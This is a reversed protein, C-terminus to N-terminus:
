RKSPITQVLTEEDTGNTCNNDRGDAIEQAGPYITSDRDDCDIDVGAYGDGDADHDCLDGIGDSDLDDQSSESTNPCNDIADRIGDGDRDGHNINVSGKCAALVLM